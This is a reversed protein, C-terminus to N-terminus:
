AAEGVAAPGSVSGTRAGARARATAAYGAWGCRVECGSAEASAHELMDELTERCTGCGTCAVKRAQFCGLSEAGQEIAEKVDKESAGTCLCVIMSESEQLACTCDGEGDGDASHVINIITKLVM